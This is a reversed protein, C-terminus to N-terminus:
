ADTTGWDENAKRIIKLLEYGEDQQEVTLADLGFNLETLAKTAGALVNEGVPTLSALVRRRDDVDHERHVFGQKALRDVLSTVSTPHVMLREGIKSLPLKGSTSFSLLRLVEYRSFTIDHPKLAADFQSLLVQQVRMVSTAFRMASAEGIHEAWLEGAREIPDFDLGPM